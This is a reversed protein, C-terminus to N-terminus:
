ALGRRGANEFACQARRTEYAFRLALGYAALNLKKGGGQSRGVRLWGARKGSEAAAPSRRASQRETGSVLATNTILSSGGSEGAMILGDTAGRADLQNALEEAYRDVNAAAAWPDATGSGETWEALYVNTDDGYLLRAEQAAAVFDGRVDAGFGHTIVINRTAGPHETGIAQLNVRPTNFPGTHPQATSRNASARIITAPKGFEGPGSGYFAIMYQLLRDLDRMEPVDYPVANSAYDVRAMVDDWSEGIVARARNVRAAWDAPTGNPPMGETLMRNWDFRLGAVESIGVQQELRDGEAPPVVFVRVQHTAGAKLTGGSGPDGAAYIHVPSQQTQDHATLRYLAGPNGTLTLVPAPVDVNGSNGYVVFFGREVSRRVASPGAIYSWLRSPRGQEVTFGNALTSTAGDTNTVIVEWAAARRGPSIM